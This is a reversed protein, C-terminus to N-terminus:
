KWQIYKYKIYFLIPFCISCCFHRVSRHLNPYFVWSFESTNKFAVLYLPPMMISKLSGKQLFFNHSLQIEYRTSLLCIMLNKLDCSRHSWSIQSIMPDSIDHPSWSTELIILDNMRISWWTQYIMLYTQSRMFYTQSIKLNTQPIM